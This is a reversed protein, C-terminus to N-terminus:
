KHAWGHQVLSVVFPIAGILMVILAAIGRVRPSAGARGTAEVKPADKVIIVM